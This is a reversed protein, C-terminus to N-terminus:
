DPNVYFIIGRAAQDMSQLQYEYQAPLNALLALSDANDQDIINEWSYGKHRTM